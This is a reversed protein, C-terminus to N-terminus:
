DGGESYEYNDNLRDLDKLDQDLTEELTPTM